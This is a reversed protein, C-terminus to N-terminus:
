CPEQGEAKMSAGMITPLLLIVKYYLSFERAHSSRRQQEDTITAKKYRNDTHFDTRRKKLLKGYNKWM